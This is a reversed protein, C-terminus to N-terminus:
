AHYESCQWSDGGSVEAGSGGVNYKCTYNFAYINKNRVCNHMFAGGWAFNRSLVRGLNGGALPVHPCSMGQICYVEDICHLMIYSKM